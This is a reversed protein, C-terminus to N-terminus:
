KLSNWNNIIVEYDGCDAAMISLEYESIISMCTQGSEISVSIFAYVRHGDINAGKSNVLIQGIDSCRREMFLEAQSFSIVGGGIQPNIGQHNTERKPQHSTIVRELFGIKSEIIAALALTDRDTVIARALVSASSSQDNDINGTKIPNIANKIYDATLGRRQCEESFESIEKQLNQWKKIMSKVDEHKATATEIDLTIYSETLRDRQNLLDRNSDTSKSCSCVLM